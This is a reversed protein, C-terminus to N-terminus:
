VRVSQFYLLSLCVLAGLIAWDDWWFGARSLKRAILRLIVATTSLSILTISAAIIRPTQSESLDTGPPSTIGDPGALQVLGNEPNPLLSLDITTM